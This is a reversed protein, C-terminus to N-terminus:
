AAHECTSQHSGAALYNEPNIESAMNAIPGTRLIQFGKKMYSEPHQTKNENGKVDSLSTKRVNSVRGRM